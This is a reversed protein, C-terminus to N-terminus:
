KGSLMAKDIHFHGSDGEWVSRAEEVSLQKRFFPADLCLTEFEGGEGGLHFRFRRSLSELEKLSKEDMARGLWDRGLGDCAVGVVMIKFGKAFLELWLQKPDQKWLPAVMSLGLMKCVREVREKQYVSALAGVVVGDVKRALPKLAKEIDKVEEEKVGESSARVLPIGAAEAQLATLQINPYHYMYSDPRKPTISVLHTVKWGSELSRQVALSSDKGGSFLAALKM